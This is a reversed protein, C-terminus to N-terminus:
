RSRYGAYNELFGYEFGFPNHPAAASTRLSFTELIEKLSMGNEKFYELEKMNEEGAFLREGSAGLRVTANSPRFTRMGNEDRGQMVKDGRCGCLSSSLIGACLFLLLEHRM